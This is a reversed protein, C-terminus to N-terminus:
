RDLVFQVKQKVGAFLPRVIATAHPQTPLYLWQPPTRPGVIIANEGALRLRM